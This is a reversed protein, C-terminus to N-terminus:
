KNVSFKDAWAQGRALSQMTASAPQTCVFRSVIAFAVDESPLPVPIGLTVSFGEPLPHGHNELYKGFAVVVNDTWEIDGTRFANVLDNALVIVTSSAGGSKSPAVIYVDAAIEQNLFDYDVSIQSSLTLKGKEGAGSDNDVDRVTVNLSKGSVFIGAGNFPQMSWEMYGDFAVLYVKSPDLDAPPNLRLKVGAASLQVNPAKTLVHDINFHGDAGAYMYFPTAAPYADHLHDRSLSENVRVDEITFKIDSLM